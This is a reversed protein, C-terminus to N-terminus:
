YLAHINVQGTGDGNDTVVIYVRTATVGDYDSYWTYDTGNVYFDPNGRYTGPPFSAVDTETCTECEKILVPTVTHFGVCRFFGGILNEYAAKFHVRSTDAGESFDFGSELGAGDGALQCSSEVRAVGGLALIFVALLATKKM